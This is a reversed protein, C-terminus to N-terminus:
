QRAREAGLCKGCAVLVQRGSGPVLASGPTPRGCACVPQTHSSLPSSRRASVCSSRCVVSPGSGLTHDAGGTHSSPSPEPPPGAIGPLTVLTPQSCPPRPLPVPHQFHSPLSCQANSPFRLARLHRSPSSRVFSRVFAQGADSISVYIVSASSVGPTFFPHPSLLCASPPSSCLTHKCAIPARTRAPKFTLALM